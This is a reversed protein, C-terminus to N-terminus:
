SSRDWTYVCVYVSSCALGAWLGRTGEGELGGVALRFGVYFAVVRGGRPFDAAQAHEVGRELLLIQPRALPKRMLLYVLPIPSRRLLSWPSILFFSPPPPLPPPSPLFVLYTHFIFTM